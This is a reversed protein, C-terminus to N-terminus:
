YSTNITDYWFIEIHDTTMIMCGESKQLLPVSLIEARPYTNSNYQWCCLLHICLEAVSFAPLIGGQPSLLLLLACSRLESGAKRGRASERWGRVCLPAASSVGRCDYPLCAQSLCPSSALLLSPPLLPPSFPSAARSHLVFSGLDAAAASDAGAKVKTTQCSRSFHSANASWRDKRVELTRCRYCHLVLPRQAQKGHCSCYPQNGHRPAAKSLLGRAAVHLHWIWLEALVYRLVQAWIAPSNPQPFPALHTEPCWVCVHLPEAM